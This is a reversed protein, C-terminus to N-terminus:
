VCERCLGTDSAADVATGCSTCAVYEDPYGRRVEFKTLARELAGAKKEGANEEIKDWDAVLIANGDHEEGSEFLWAAEDYGKEVINRLVRDAMEYHKDPTFRM